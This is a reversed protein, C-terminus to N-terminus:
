NSRDGEQLQKQLIEFLMEQTDPKLENVPIEEVKHHHLHNVQGQHQITAKNSWQEPVRNTLWQSIARESPIVHKQVKIKKLKGRVQFVQEEEFDYGVARQYLSAVVRMDASIGGAKKAERFDPYHKIWYEITTINVEFFDAFTQNTAGLMALIRVKELSYKTFEPKPGTKKTSFTKKKQEM